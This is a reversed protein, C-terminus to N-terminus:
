FAVLGLGGTFPNSLDPRLAQYFEYVELDLLVVLYLVGVAEVAPVLSHDVAETFLLARSAPGGLQEREVEDLALEGVALEIVQPLDSLPSCGLQESDPVLEGFHLEKLLAVDVELPGDDPLCDIHCGPGNDGDRLFSNLILHPHVPMINHINQRKLLLTSLCAPRLLLSFLLPVTPIFAVRCGAVLFPPELFTLHFALIEL